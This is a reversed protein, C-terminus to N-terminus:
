AGCRYLRLTEGDPRLVDLEDAAVLRITSAPGAVELVDGAAGEECARSRSWEGGLLSSLGRQRVELVRGDVDIRVSGPLRACGGVLLLM